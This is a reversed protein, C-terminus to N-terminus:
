VVPGKRTRSDAVEGVTMALEHTLQKSTEPDRCFASITRGAGAFYHIRYFQARSAGVTIRSVLHVAPIRVISHREYFHHQRAHVRTRTVAIRTSILHSSWVALGAILVVAALALGRPIVTVTGLAVAVSVCFAVLAVTILLSRGLVRIGRRGLMVPSLNEEGMSRLVGSVVGRPLSPLAVNTGHGVTADQTLVLLRVRDLLMEVANRHIRFGILAGARIVRERRDLSGYRITVEDGRRWVEFGHFRILTTLMGLSLTVLLVIVLLLPIGLALYVDLEWLGVTELAEVVGYIGAAGAVLVQGQALGGVLLQRGTARYLLDGTVREVSSTVASPESAPSSVSEPPSGHAPAAGIQVLAAATADNVGSLTFSGGDTSEGGVHLAVLSLGFIRYAWPQRLERVAVSDWAAVSRRRVWVGHEVFLTDPTIQYRMTAWLVVPYTLRLGVLLGVLLLMWSGPWTEPRVIYLVGVAVLGTISPFNYLYAAAVSRGPLRLLATRETM